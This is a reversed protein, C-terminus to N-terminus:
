LRFSCREAIETAAQLDTHRASGREEATAIQGRCSAPRNAPRWQIRCPSTPLTCVSLLQSVPALPKSANGLQLVLPMAFGGVHVAGCLRRVGFLFRARNCHTNKM